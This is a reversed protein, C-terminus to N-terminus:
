GAGWTCCRLRQDGFLATMRKRLKESANILVIEEALSFMHKDSESDSYATKIIGGLATIPQVKNAGYCHYRAVLGGSRRELLSGRVVIRPDIEKCIDQALSEECATVVAVRHGADFSDSIAALAEPHCQARVNLRTAYDHTLQAISADNVGVTAIWLFASAGYSKWRRSLTLPGALPLILISTVLRWLDKKLLHILFKQFTDHDVITEDLDFVVWSHKPM